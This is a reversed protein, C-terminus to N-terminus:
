SSEFPFQTGAAEGVQAQLSGPGSLSSSSWVPGTLGCCAVASDLLGFSGGPFVTGEVLHWSGPGQLQLFWCDQEGDLEM